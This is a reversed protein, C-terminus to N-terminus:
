LDQVYAVMRSRMGADPMPGYLAGMNEEMHAVVSTAPIACTVDPHSVIFKLLFQPWNECEIEAAWDPLPHGAFQNILAKRRFPRNAIVAVGRERALPLLRQEAERDLVNYTLQVFDLDERRLIRELEDHRRGHSTTVGIYRVEGAERRERLTELHAEWNQLNHVQQLDLTDVGWLDRSESHQDRGTSTSRTWIKTASFVGEPHGLERLGHGVVAEARGYMPSSDIMGGGRRVFTDLIRTRVALAEPDEPVNFTIWTGMGIVPIEEGSSPIPKRQPERGEATGGVLPWGAGAAVASGAMWRLFSRRSRRPSPHKM